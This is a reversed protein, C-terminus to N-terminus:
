NQITEDNIHHALVLLFFCQGEEGMVDGNVGKGKRFDDNSGSGKEDMAM